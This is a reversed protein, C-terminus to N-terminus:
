VQFTHKDSVSEENNSDTVLTVMDPTPPTFDEPQVPEHITEDEDFIKIRYEEGPKEQPSKEYLQLHQLHSLSDTLINDKGKIYQCTIHLSILFMELAWNPTLVNRTKNKILKQLLAM